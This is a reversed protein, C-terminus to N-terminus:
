AKTANTDSPFQFHIQTLQESVEWLAQAVNGDLAREPLRVKGPAGRAERRGTPGFFTGGSADSATAAYLSPLACQAASQGLLANFLPRVVPQLFPPVSHQQLNTFSTGPHVAVSTLGIGRARRDLEVAFLINALKSRSYASWPTYHHESQLDTLDMEAQRAIMASVTVVRPANSQVLLPLLQGTLAFHGLHNTGFQMEFGDSTLRREPIAMVGANNILLDIPQRREYMRQAFAAISALNALDLVEVEVNATPSTAKIEQVAEQGKQETRAAVIVQAGANALAKATEFGVGSNGGTVIALKGTQDPMDQTTWRAMM